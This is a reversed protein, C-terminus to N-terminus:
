KIEHPFITTDKHDDLDYVKEGRLRKLMNKRKEAKIAMDFEYTKENFEIEEKKNKFLEGLPLDSFRVIYSSPPKNAVAIKDPQHEDAFLVMQESIYPRKVLRRYDHVHCRQDWNPTHWANDTERILIPRNYMDYCPSIDVLTYRMKKGPYVKKKFAGSGITEEVAYPPDIQRPPIRPSERYYKCKTSQFSLLDKSSLGPPIFYLTNHKSRVNRMKPATEFTGAFDTMDFTSGLDYLMDDNRIGYDMTYDRQLNPPQDVRVFTVKKENHVWEL